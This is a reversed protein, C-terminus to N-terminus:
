KKICRIPLAAAKPQTNDSTLYGIDASENSQSIELTYALHYNTGPGNENLWYFGKVGFNATDYKGTHDRRSVAPMFSCGRLNDWTAIATHRGSICGIIPFENERVWRNQSGNHSYADNVDHVTPIQWGTPCPNNESLWDYFEYTYTSAWNVPIGGGTPDYATTRNFQYFKGFDAPSAAFTGVEDVNTRAMLISRNYAEMLVGELQKVTVTTSLNGATIKVTTSRSETATYPLFAVELTILGQQLPPIDDHPVDVVNGTSTTSSVISCWTAAPDITATWAVNSEVRISCTEGYSSVEFDYPADDISGDEHVYRVTMLPIDYEKNSCGSFVVLSMVAM